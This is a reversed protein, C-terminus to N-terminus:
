EEVIVLPCLARIDSKAAEDLEDFPKGLKNQALEDWVDEWAAKIENYAGLYTKYNTGRENKLRIGKQKEQQAKKPGLQDNEDAIPKLLFAKVRSQVDGIGVVAGDITLINNEDIRVYLSDSLAVGQENEDFGPPQLNIAPGKNDESIFYLMCLFILRVAENDFDEETMSWVVFQGIRKMAGTFDGPESDAPQGAFAAAWNVRSQLLSEMHDAAIKQVTCGSVSPSLDPIRLSDQPVRISIEGTEALKAFLKLFGNGSKDLYGAEVLLSQFRYMEDTVDIQLGAFKSFVADCDQDPQGWAVQAALILM